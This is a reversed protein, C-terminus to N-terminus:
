PPPPNQASPDSSQPPQPKIRTLPPTAAMGERRSPAAAKSVNGSLARVYAALEWAQQDTLKGRWSPMGNPRGDLITAHIQDITGGYRWQDDMLAPGMSGGGNGHCGNCNFSRFWRSGQNIHYANGEYRAGTASPAQALTGGPQLDTLRPRESGPAAPAARYERRERDCGAVGCALLAAVVTAGVSARLCRSSM